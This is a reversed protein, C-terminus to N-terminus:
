FVKIILPAYYWRLLFARVTVLEIIHLLLTCLSENIPVRILSYRNLLVLNLEGLRYLHMCTVGTLVFMYSPGRTNRNVLGVTTPLSGINPFASTHILIHPVYQGYQNPAHVYPHKSSPIENSSTSSPSHSRVGRDLPPTYRASHSQSPSLHSHPKTDSSHNSSGRKPKGGPSQQLDPQIRLPVWKKGLCFVIFVFNRVCCM